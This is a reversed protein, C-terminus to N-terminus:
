PREQAGPVRDSGAEPPEIVNEPFTDPEWEAVEPEVWAISHEIGLVELGDQLSCSHGEWVKEYDKYVAIWDDTHIIHIHM